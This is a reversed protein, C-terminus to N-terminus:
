GFTPHVEVAAAPTPEVQVAVRVVETSDLQLAAEQAAWEFKWYRAKLWTSFGQYLQDMAATPEM